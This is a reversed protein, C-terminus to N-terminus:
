GNALKRSERPRARLEVPCLMPSRIRKLTWLWGRLQGRIDTFRPSKRSELCGCHDCNSRQACTDQCLKTWTLPTIQIALCFLVLLTGTAVTSRNGVAMRAMSQIM